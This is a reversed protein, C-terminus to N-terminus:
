FLSPPLLLDYIPRIVYTLVPRFIGLYMLVFLLIFGSQEFRMVSSTYAIRLTQTFVHWGDLPPIPLLNFVLLVINIFTAYDCFMVFADTFTSPPGFRLALRLLLSWVIAQALNTAVGALSVLIHDRRFHRFRNPNIPVPKAWGFGFGALSSIIFMLTGVLELHPLPSLTLRGALKATDDGCRYAVYGHAVEHLIIALLFAPLGVVIKFLVSNPDLM